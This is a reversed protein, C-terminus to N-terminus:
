QPQNRVSELGCIHCFKGKLVTIGDRQCVGFPAVKAGCVTCYLDGSDYTSYCEPCAHSSPSYSTYINKVSDILSSDVDKQNKAEKMFSRIHDLVIPQIWSSTVEQYGDGDDFGDHGANFDMLELHAQHYREIHAVKDALEKGYPDIGDIRLLTRLYRRGLYDKNPSGSVCVEYFPLSERFDKKVTSCIHGALEAFQRKEATCYLMAMKALSIAKDPLEHMVRMIGIDYAKSFTPDLSVVKSYGTYTKIAERIRNDSKDQQSWEKKERTQRRWNTQMWIFDSLVADFGATAMRQRDMYSVGLDNSRDVKRQETARQQLAAMVIASSLLITLYLFSGRM